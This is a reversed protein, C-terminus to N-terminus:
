LNSTLTLGSNETSTIISLFDVVLISNKILALLLKLALLV